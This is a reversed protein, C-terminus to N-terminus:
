NLKDKDINLDMLSQLFSEQLSKDMHRENNILTKSKVQKKLLDSLDLSDNASKDIYENWENSQLFDYQKRCFKEANKISIDMAKEISNATHSQQTANMNELYAKFFTECYHRFAANEKTLISDIITTIYYMKKEHNLSTDSMIREIFKYNM